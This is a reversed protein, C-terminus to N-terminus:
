YSYICLSSVNLMDITQGWCIYFNGAEAGFTFNGFDYWEYIVNFGIFEQKPAVPNNPKLYMMAKELYMPDSATYTIGAEDTVPSSCPVRQIAVRNAAEFEIGQLRFNFPQGMTAVKTGNFAYPGALAFTGASVWM